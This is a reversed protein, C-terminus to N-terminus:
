AGDDSPIARATAGLKSRGLATLGGLWARALTVIALRRRVPGHSRPATARRERPSCTPVASPQQAADAGALVEIAAAITGVAPRLLPDLALMPEILARWAAGEVVADLADLRVVGLTKDYLLSADGRDDYPLVGTLLEHLVVGLAYVDLAATPPLGVVQEPAMYAITGLMTGVATLRPMAVPDTVPAALGFDLLKAHLLGGRTTLMVNDPKLDRHVIGAEHASALADIVGAMVAAVWRGPLPGHANLEERLTRGRLLEMAIFSGGGSLPGADIVEVVHPHQVAATMWAERDSRLAPPERGDRARMLKIAVERRTTLDVAEFVIGLGGEGIRRGLVYRGGVNTEAASTSATTSM